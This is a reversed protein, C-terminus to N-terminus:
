LNEAKEGKKRERMREKKREKRKERKRERGVAVLAVFGVLERTTGRCGGNGAAGIPFPGIQGSVAFTLRERGVKECSM